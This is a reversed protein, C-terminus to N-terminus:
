KVDYIHFLRLRLRLNKVIQAERVKRRKRRRAGKAKPAAQASPSGLAYFAFACLAYAGFAFSCAAGFAYLSIHFLRRIRKGIKQQLCLISLNL